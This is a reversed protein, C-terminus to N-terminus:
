FDDDGEDEGTYELEMLQEICEDAVDPLADALADATKALERLGKIAEKLDVKYGKILEKKTAVEDGEHCEVAYNYDGQDIGYGAEECDYAMNCANSYAESFKSCAKMLKTTAKSM